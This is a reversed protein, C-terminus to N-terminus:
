PVSASVTAHPKASVWVVSRKRALRDREPLSGPTFNSGVAIVEASGDGDLDGHRYRIAYAAGPIRQPWRAPSRWRGEM